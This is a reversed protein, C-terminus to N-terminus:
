FPNAGSKLLERVVDYDKNYAAWHAATMRTDATTYDAKAGNELLKKVIQLRPEDADKAKGKVLYGRFCVSMLPTFKYKNQASILQDKQSPFDAVIKDILFEVIDAHGNNAALHLASAQARKNKYFLLGKKDEYNDYIVVIGDLDGDNANDM